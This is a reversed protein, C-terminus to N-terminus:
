PFQPPLKDDRLHDMRRQMLDKWEPHTFIWFDENRIAGLVQEAVSAPSLGDAVIQAAGKEFRSGEKSQAHDGLADPRNRESATIQTAVNGPCLVSVGLKQERALLDRQLTEMLAVVGFKSVNYPAIAPSSIVGATSSTALIHAEDQELLIPVFAKIGHIVGWLNVGLVWEWDQLTLEYAPGATVVGANNCVIHAAGFREVTANALAEVDEFKSVDTRKSLVETGTAGVEAEAKALAGDEIDALVIKMGEQAFRKAMELGMGSAGGTVVAVRGEFNEV